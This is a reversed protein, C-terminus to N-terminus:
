ESKYCSCSPHIFEGGSAVGSGAQIYLTRCIRSTQMFVLVILERLPREEVLGLILAGFIFFFAAWTERLSRAIWGVLGTVYTSGAM